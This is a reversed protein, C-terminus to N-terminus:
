RELAALARRLLVTITEPDGRFVLYASEGLRKDHAEGISIRLCMEDDPLRHITFGGRQYDELLPEGPAGATIRNGGQARLIEAQQQLRWLKAGVDDDRHSDM